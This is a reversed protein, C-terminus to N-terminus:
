QEESANNTVVEQVINLITQDFSDTVVGGMSKHAEERPEDDDVINM